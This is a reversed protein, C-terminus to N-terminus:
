MEVLKPNLSYLFSRLPTRSSLSCHPVLSHAFPRVLPGTSVHVTKIIRAWLVPQLTADFKSNMCFQVHQDDPLNHIVFIPCFKANQFFDSGEKIM